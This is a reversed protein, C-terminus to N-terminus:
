LCYAKLRRLEEQLLTGDGGPGLGAINERIRPCPDTTYDGGGFVVGIGRLVRAPSLPERMRFTQAERGPLRADRHVLPDRAFDGSDRSPELLRAGQEIFVASLSQRTEAM